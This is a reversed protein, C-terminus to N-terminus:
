FLSFLGSKEDDKGNRGGNNAEGGPAAAAACSKALDPYAACRTVLATAAPVNGIAVSHRIKAVIVAPEGFEAAAKDLTALTGAQDGTLSQVAALDFYAKAPARPLAIARKYAAIAEAFKGEFTFTQGDVMHYLVSGISAPGSKEVLKPPGKGKGKGKAKGKVAVAPAVRAAIRAKVADLLQRAGAIDGRSLAIAAKSAAEDPGYEDAYDQAFERPAPAKAKAFFRGITASSVVEAKRPHHRDSYLRVGEVRDDASYYLHIKNKDYRRGLFDLFTKALAAAIGSKAQELVAKPGGNMLAEPAAQAVIALSLKLNDGLHKLGAKMQGVLSDDYKDYVLLINSGDRPDGLPLQDMLDSSAYDVLSEQEKKYPAGTVRYLEMEIFPSLALAGQVSGMVQPSVPGSTGAKGAVNNIASGISLARSLFKAIGVDKSKAEYLRPHDYLIHSYEHGLIFILQNIQKEDETMRETVLKLMGTTLIIEDARAFANARESLQLTVRPVIDPRPGSAAILAVYSQLGSLTRTYLAPDIGARELDRPIAGPALAVLGTSVASLKLNGKAVYQDYSKLVPVDPIKPKGGFLDASAPAAALLVVPAILAGRFAGAIRM